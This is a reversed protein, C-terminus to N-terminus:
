LFLLVRIVGLLTIFELGKGGRGGRGMTVLEVVGVDMGWFFVRFLVRRFKVSVFLLFM